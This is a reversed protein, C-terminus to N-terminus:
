LLIDVSVEYGRALSRSLFFFFLFYHQKLIVRLGDIIIYKFIQNLAFKNNKTKLLINVYDSQDISYLNKMDLDKNKYNKSVVKIWKNSYVKKYGKIM